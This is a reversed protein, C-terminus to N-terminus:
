KLANNLNDTREKYSNKIRNKSLAKTKLPTYGTAYDAADSIGVETQKTKKKQSTEQAAQKSKSSVKPSTKKTQKSKSVKQPSIKKNKKPYLPKQECGTILLISIISLLFSLKTKMM